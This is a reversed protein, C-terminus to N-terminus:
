GYSYDGKDRLKTDNLVRYDRQWYTSDENYSAASMSYYILVAFAHVPPPPPL